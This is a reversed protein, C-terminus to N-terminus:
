EHQKEGRRTRCWTSARCRTEDMGMKMFEAQEEARARSTFRATETGTGQKVYEEEGDAWIVKIAFM